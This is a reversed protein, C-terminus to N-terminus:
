KRSTATAQENYVMVHGLFKHTQQDFAHYADPYIILEIEGGPPRERQKAEECSPAPTWDDKGGAFVIVPSRLSFSHLLSARCDPYFAAVARFRDRNVLNVAAWLAVTAGHSQGMAFFKSKDVKPHKQL